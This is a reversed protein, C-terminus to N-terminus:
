EGDFPNLSPHICTTHFVEVFEAILDDAQINDSQVFKSFPEFMHLNDKFFETLKETFTKTGVFSNVMNLIPLKAEEKLMGDDILKDLLKEAVASAETWEPHQGSILDTVLFGDKLLLGVVARASHFRAREESFRMHNEALDKLAPIQEFLKKSSMIQKLSDPIFGVLGIQDSLNNAAQYQMRNELWQIAKGSKKGAYDYPIVTLEMECFRNIRYCILCDVINKAVERDNKCAYQLGQPYNKQFDEIADDYNYKGTAQSMRADFIVVLSDPDFGLRALAAAQLALNKDVDPAMIIAQLRDGREVLVTPPLDGTETWAIVFEKQEKAFGILKAMSFNSQNQDM